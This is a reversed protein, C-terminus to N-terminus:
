NRSASPPTSRSTSRRCARYASTLPLRPCPWWRWRFIAAEDLLMVVERVDRERYGYHSAPWEALTKRAQEASALAAVKDTSLAVQNLVRAVESSLLQFDEEGPGEAYRQYRAAASYRDTRVWDVQSAPLTVVHLRPQDSPGGVPMSFVVQEDLRAFEGFSVISSGDRLFLRFLTADAAASVGTVTALSVVAIVLSVRLRMRLSVYQLTSGFVDRVLGITSFRHIFRAYGTSFRVVFYKKDHSAFSGAAKRSGLAAEHGAESSGM